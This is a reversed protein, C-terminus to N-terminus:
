RMSKVMKMISQENNDGGGDDSSCAVILLALFVYILKKMTNLKFYFGM